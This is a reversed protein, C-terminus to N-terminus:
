EGCQAKCEYWANMVISFEIVRVNYDDSAKRYALVAEIYADAKQEAKNMAACLKAAVRAANAVAVACALPNSCCAIAVAAGAADAEYAAAQMDAMAQKAQDAARNQNEVARQLEASAKDLERQADNMAQEKDVCCSALGLRDILNISNNRIFRYINNGGLQESPIFLDLISDRRFASQLGIFMLAQMDASQKNSETNQRQLSVAYTTLSTITFVGNWVDQARKHWNYSGPNGVPDRSLWRGLEQSYYRYGYYVLGTEDDQFKTSFRYANNAAYGGIQAVIRGFPDYEYHAVTNGSADALESVNGNSDFAYCVTSLISYDISSLLGGVGGAGQISGSLDLGWTHTAQLNVASPQLEYTAIVNWHDYVFAEDKTLTWNGSQYESVMKRIRRGM